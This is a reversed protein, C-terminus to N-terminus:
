LGSVRKYAEIMDRGWLLVIYSGALLLPGFAIRMRRRYKGALLLVILLLTGIYSAIVVALLGGQWGLLIGIGVLLRVDGGGVWKEHSLVYIAWFLLGLVAAGIFADKVVNIDDQMYATLAVLTLSTTGFQYVLPTPLIQHSKDIISLAVMCVLVQSWVVFTVVGVGSSLSLPWFIFSVLLLLVFFLEILPYQAAIKKGCYRCRGRLMVWSVVPVLDKAGLTHECHPCMSRGRAVSLKKIEAKRKKESIKAETLEFRKYSRWALANVFSGLAVGYVAVLVYIM